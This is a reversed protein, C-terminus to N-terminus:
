LASFQLTLTQWKGSEDRQRFVFYEKSYQVTIAESILQMAENWDGTEDHIDLKRLSLIGRTDVKNADNVRFAKNILAKINNNSGASWRAICSDIKAKAVQLKEDFTISEQIRIEVGKEQSFDTLVTNGKWKEGYTGAMEDLYAHIDAGADTKFKRMQAQLKLAKKFLKEVMEDRKKETPRVRNRPVKVGAGDLWFTTKGEKVIRAM